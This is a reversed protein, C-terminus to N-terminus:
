GSNEARGLSWSTKTRLDDQGRSKSSRQPRGGGVCVYADMKRSIRQQQEEAGCPRKRTTHMKRNCRSCHSSRWMTRREGDVQNGGQKTNQAGGRGEDDKVARAREREMENEEGGRGGEM